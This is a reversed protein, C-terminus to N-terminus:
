KIDVMTWATNDLIEGKFSTNVNIFIHKFENIINKSIVIHILHGKKTFSIGNTNVISLKSKTKLIMRNNYISINLRKVENNFFFINFNYTIYRNINRTTELFIHLNDQNSIEAYVGKIDSSKSINLKIEDQTPDYIIKNNKNPIIKSDDNEFTVMDKNDLEGFLENKRIFANMLPALAKIQTKYSHIIKEKLEIEDNNLSLKYWITGTNILKAPPILNISTDKKLPAPWDGRHVLYLIEKANYKLDTLAYKVFCYTAWHDPHRDNAHPFVIYDPKYDQIIEEIDKALDEGCYIASKNYCNSYPSKNCHTYPSTYPNKNDWNNMWLNDIGGDPYGLFIIDNQSVGVIGLAKISEKQREYGFKIYDLPKIRIKLNNIIAAKKFGDGNTIFVVNVKGHEMIAKKILMCAGLSEDDNHPAIILLKKNNFNINLENLNVKAFYNSIFERSLFLICFTIILLTIYSIFKKLSIKM